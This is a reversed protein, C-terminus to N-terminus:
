EFQYGKERDFEVHKEQEKNWEDNQICGLNLFIEHLDGMEWYFLLWLRTTSM